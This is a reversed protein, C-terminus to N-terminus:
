VTVLLPGDSWLPSKVTVSESGAPNTNWDPVPHEAVPLTAVPWVTVQVSLVVSSGVLGVPLLWTNVTPTLTSWVTASPLWLSLAETAVPAVAVCSGVPAGFLLEALM